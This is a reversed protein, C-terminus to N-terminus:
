TYAANESRHRCSWECMRNIPIVVTNTSNVNVSKPVDMGHIKISINTSSNAYTAYDSSLVEHPRHLM